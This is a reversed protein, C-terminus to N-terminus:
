TSRLAPRVANGSQGTTIIIRAGDLDGMDVSSGTRRGTRRRRVARRHRAPVYTPDDPDPYARSVGTTTTTSRATPAPSRARGASQLVARAAPHGSSGLTSERFTVQHLKGWTWNAPDGYAARLRRARRTSRRASGLAAPRHAPEPAPAAVNWWPSIRRASSASRAGAVRVDLRRLRPGAARARRRLDGARRALEVTMYAACGVSTSTASADWDALRALLLQGDETQPDRDLRSRAAAHDPGRPARVDDMQITACTTSRSSTAPRPRPAGHDARRSLRSGVRQRALVPLGRRGPRQERTVIQAARRTSSGPCTRARCTAPGSRPAPSATACGSRRGTRGPDPDPGPARLRHPRRRRRLHLEPEALRLRRVRRPVRRLRRRHQDQLVVRARPRGRRDVDLADGPGARGEPSEDVDSLVVGTSPRDSTSRWRRGGGVKITEHRVDYALRQGDHIYHGEPDTPDPTVRPVPGAHGPQREDRGLRDARQARPRGRARRPVHRRRRGVPLGRRGRPLPPREHDLGLADRVRPASRERPDAQRQETHEGSVVWNNSGLGHDGVLGVGSDLGAFASISSGLRGLDGLAARADASLARPRPRSPSRPPGAATATAPAGAGGSGELGTPTIVPASPDYPPFLEDTRRRTASGPTPSSGSSRRTSTAASRGPRSRRGRRRTSRRGRSSRSAASAAAHRVAPRRRRVADVPSRRARHDLRERRGRVGAPDGSTEPSM